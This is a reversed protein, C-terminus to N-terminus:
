SADLFHALECGVGELSKSAKTFVVLPHAIGFLSSMDSLSTRSGATTPTEVTAFNSAHGGGAVLRTIFSPDLLISLGPPFVMRQFRVSHLLLTFSWPSAPATVLVLVFMASNQHLILMVGKDKILLHKLELVSPFPPSPRQDVQWWSLRAWSSPFAWSVQTLAWQWQPIPLSLWRQLPVM